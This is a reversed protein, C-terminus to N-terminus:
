SNKYGYSSSNSSKRKSLESDENKEKRRKKWRELSPHLHPCFPQSEINGHGHGCLHLAGTGPCGTPMSRIRDFWLLFRHARNTQIIQARGGVGV